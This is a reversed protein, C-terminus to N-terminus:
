FFHDLEGLEKFAISLMPQICMFSREKIETHVCMIMDAETELIQQKDWDSSPGRLSWYCLSLKDVSGQKRKM